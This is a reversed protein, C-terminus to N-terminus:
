KKYLGDVISDIADMTRVGSAYIESLNIAEVRKNKVASINQLADNNLIGNIAQDKAISDGYYITFIVDPNAKILDEAGHSANKDIVLEAGVETAIEGGISNKGYVRFMNDKAVEIILTKIKEKQKSKEKAESIKNKMEEVIEKARDVKNFIIGLNMIDQYTYEIKNDGRVGSNQIIYTPIEREHWFEVDGLQKELFYSYWSVIMDAEIGLVEEKTPAADYYKIKSFAEKHEDKVDGDLGAAAIIKDGLGLALLNEIPSQYVALVKEPAKDFTLKIEEGKTNYTSITVPYYSDKSSSTKETEKEDKAPKEQKLKEDKNDNLTKEKNECSSFTFALVLTLLLYIIKKFRM